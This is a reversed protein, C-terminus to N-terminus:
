RLVHFYVQRFALFNLWTRLAYGSAKLNAPSFDDFRGASPHVGDGSILTGDWAAGPQLRLIEGCYDVLPVKHKAALDKIIKNAGEVAQMHDRRPPITNLIPICKAALCKRIVADLGAQYDPPVRNGTIDNTGIMILAVEPKDGALVKDIVGLLQAVRWGSYNGKNPGKDRLGKIVGSWQGGRPQIPLGDGPIHPAPNATALPAWFAMSFTISDGLQAVQGANGRFGEHVARMADLWYPKEQGAGCWASAAGLVMLAAALRRTM